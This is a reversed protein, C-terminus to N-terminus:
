EVIEVRTHNPAYIALADVHRALDAVNAYVTGDGLGNKRVMSSLKEASARTRSTIGAVEVGWVQTLARTQFEAIFGAGIIGLRFKSM